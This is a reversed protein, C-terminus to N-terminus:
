RVLYFAGSENVVNGREFTLRLSYYYIGTPEENGSANTGDWGVENAESFTNTAYVLIGLKNYIELSFNENTIKQGFIKFTRNDRDDANPSFVEPVYLVGTRPAIPALGVALYTKVNLAPTYPIESTIRGFTLSDSDEILSVGLSQWRNDLSRTFAVAPSNSRHRINNRLIFDSLDEESFELQVQTPSSVTGNILELEWFARHSVGLLSDGPEPDVPNDRNYSVQIETENAFGDVNGLTLPAYIGNAGVPFLKLGSGKHILSGEFYSDVSGTTTPVVIDEGLVFRTNEGIQVVGLKFDILDTVLYESGPFTVVGSSNVILEKIELEDALIMQDRFGLFQVEGETSNFNNNRTWDGFLSISGLNQILGDNELDTGVQLDAGEAVHLLASEGVYLQSFALLPLLTTLIAILGQRM